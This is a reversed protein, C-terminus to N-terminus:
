KNITISLVINNQISFHKWTYERYIRLLKLSNKKPIITSGNQWHSFSAWLLELILESEETKCTVSCVWANMEQNWNKKSIEGSGRGHGWTNSHTPNGSIYSKCAHRTEPLKSFTWELLGLIKGLRLSSGGSVVM